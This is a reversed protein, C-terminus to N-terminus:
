YFVCFVSANWTNYYPTSSSLSTVRRDWHCWTFCRHTGLCRHRWGSTLWRDRTADFNALMHKEPKSCVPTKCNRRFCSAGWCLELLSPEAKPMWQKEKTWTSDQFSPHLPHLMRSSAQKCASPQLCLMLSSTESFLPTKVTKTLIFDKSDKLHWEGTGQWIQPM